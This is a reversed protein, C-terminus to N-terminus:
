PGMSSLGTLNRSPIGMSALLTEPFGSITCGAKAKIQEDRCYGLRSCKAHMFLIRLKNVQLYGAERFSKCCSGFAANTCNSARQRGLRHQKSLGWFRGVQCLEVCVLLQSGAVLGAMKLLGVVAKLMVRGQQKLYMNELTNCGLSSSVYQRSPDPIM